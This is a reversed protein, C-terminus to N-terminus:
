RPDRFQDHPKTMDTELPLLSLRDGHEHNRERVNWVFFAVGAAALLLGVFLLFILVEM